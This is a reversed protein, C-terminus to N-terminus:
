KNSLLFYDCLSIKGVGSSEYKCWAMSSGLCTKSSCHHFVFLLDVVINVL